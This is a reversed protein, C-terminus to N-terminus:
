LSRIAVVPNLRSARYAPIFGAIIGVAASIGIGILINYLSLSLQMAGSLNVLLAILGVLLIGILGGMICLTVAEILFEVLIYRSRAGIAKKLGIYKTREKVTVFMINAIGFAGVILSIISIMGGVVNVTVFMADMKKTIQSLQNVAFNNPDGPKVKRQARLAGEVEYQMEQVDYGKKAQVMLVPDYNLSRIDISSSLANLPVIICNDFNFGSMNAGTKKLIGVIVFGKGFCSITKGIPDVNGKFLSEYLERGIVVAASGGELEALSLYRGKSIEVNQLKDFDRTVAYTAFGSVDNDEYRATRGNISLELTSISANGVNQQVARLEDYTMSPRRWYEWWKYEGGDDMWPWRNIYLVNSGLTNVQERINKKLSDLVTFVAIICFIGITIGTLSLASRLKNAKLEQFAQKFSTSTIKALQNNM